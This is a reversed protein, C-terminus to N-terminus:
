SRMAMAPVLGSSRYPVAVASVQCAAMVAIWAGLNYGPVNAAEALPEIGPALAASRAPQANFM